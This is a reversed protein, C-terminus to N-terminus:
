PQNGRAEPFERRHWETWHGELECINSFGRLRLGLIAMQARPGQGCYVVVPDTRQVDASLGIALVRWFPVNIAGPVHGNAYEEGSRVDVVTPLTGLDLQIRVEDPTISAPRPAGAEAM